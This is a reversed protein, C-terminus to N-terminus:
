SPPVRRVIQRYRELDQASLPPQGARPPEPTVPGSFYWLWILVAANYAAVSIVGWWFTFRTGIEYFKTSALLAVTSYLGFGACIGFAHQRWRLGFLTVMAVLLVFMAVELLRVNLEGALIWASLKNGKAFLIRTRAVTLVVSLLVTTPVTPRLWWAARALNGFVARFVEYLVGIGLVIYAADTAYYIFYYPKPHNRAAFRSIGAVVAACTYAFFWPFTRFSRKGVLFWLLLAQLPIAAWIFIFILAGM